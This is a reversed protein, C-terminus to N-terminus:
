AKKGFLIGLILGTLSTIASFIETNWSRLIVIYVVELLTLGIVVLIAFCVGLVLHENPEVEVCVTKKEEVNREDIGNVNKLRIWIRSTLANRILSKLWKLLLDM